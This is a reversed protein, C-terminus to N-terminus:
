KARGGGRKAQLLDDVRDVVQGTVSYFTVSIADPDAEFLCYGAQSSFVEPTWPTKQRSYYPAGATGATIHWTSFEFSPDPSTRDLVGDGNTDDIPFVGVPTRPGILLRVYAHEDGALFAATKTSSSIAKWFRNRVEIMGPGAPVVADGERAYARVRNNGGHWMGDGLHGGCPFVPEQACVLVYRVTPNTEAEQLTKEIWLLQDELFYGEPSGGYASVKSNTTWWYNNNAVIVLVPGYQFTYVTERYPPRRPDAPEPGNAPNFLEDAFVAEASETAYPWKDFEVAAGSKETFVNLLAEHNGMACYIPHNRWFGSLAWKWGKLQLRFDEVRSVYGKVLDGGFLFFEAGRRHADISIARLVAANVGMFAEDGDGVGERGDSAFAFVVRGEGPPPATRFRYTSSRICEMAGEKGPRECVVAYRYESAPRLGSLEIAHKRRPRDGAAIEERPIDPGAVLVRGSCEEDTEWVITVSDPRDSRALTVFPGEVISLNKVIRGGERRVHVVGDYSGYRHLTAGDIRWLQLRYAIAPTPPMPGQGKPWANANLTDSFFPAVPLIGRGKAISGSERFRPYDIDAEGAEFPYPGTYLVGQLDPNRLDIVLGRGGDDSGIVNRLEEISIPYAAAPKRRPLDPVLIPLVDEAARALNSGDLVFLTAVAVIARPLPKCM